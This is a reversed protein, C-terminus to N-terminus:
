QLAGISNNKNNLATPIPRPFLKRLFFDLTGSVSLKLGRNSGRGSSQSLVLICRVCRSINDFGLCPFM